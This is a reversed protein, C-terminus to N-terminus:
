LNLNKFFKTYSMTHIILKYERQLSNTFIYEKSEIDDNLSITKNWSVNIIYLDNSYSLFNLHKIILEYNIEKRNLYTSYKVNRDENSVNSILNSLSLSTIFMINDMAKFIEKKYTHDKLYCNKTIYEFFNKTFFVDNNNYNNNKM